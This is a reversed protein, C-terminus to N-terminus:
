TSPPPNIKGIQATNKINSEDKSKATNQIFYIWVIWILGLTYGFTENIRNGQVLHVLSTNWYPEFNSANVTHSFLTSIASSGFPANYLAILEFLSVGLFLHSLFFNLFFFWYWIRLIIVISVERSSSNPASWSVKQPDHPPSRANDGSRPIRRPQVNVMLGLALAHPIKEDKVYPAASRCLLRNAPWCSFTNRM